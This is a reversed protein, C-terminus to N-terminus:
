LAAMTVKQLVTAITVAFVRRRYNRLSCQNTWVVTTRALSISSQVNSGLHVM